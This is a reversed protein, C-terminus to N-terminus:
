QLLVKGLSNVTITKTKGSRTVTLTVPTTIAVATGSTANWATGDPRFEISATTVTASNTMTRLPGDNKGPTTLDAAVANYPYTSVDCRTTSTDASTGLLEVIRYYGTSPCNTRLRLPSNNAVSKMRAIQLEREVQQAANSLKTSDSVANLAPVAIAALTAAIAVTLLLEILSFGRADHASIRRMGELRAISSGSSPDAVL